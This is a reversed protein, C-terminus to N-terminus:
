RRNRLLLAVPLLPGLSVLTLLLFGDQFSLATAQATIVSDLYSKAVNQQTAEALGAESLRQAVLRLMEVTTNNAATQTAGLHAAHFETRYELAIVYVSIGTSGGFMLSLNTIGAGDRMKQPTLASMATTNIAPNAFASGVRGILLSIAVYWFLTNADAGILMATSAAIIILGFIMVFPTPMRDSAQGTLPLVMAAFISGPLLMSGAVTPSFGQVFQGFISFSYVTAFNGFAFFFACALALVFPGNRFLSLDLLAGAPRQQSLIFGIGCGLTFTSLIMLNDSTWGWRQGNGLLTFWGLVFSNALVFGLWDFSGAQTKHEEAPLFLVGLIITLICVPVPILFIARWEFADITIGGMSPGLGLAVTVGMSFMGMALGRREPPFVQFLVMMVLPQLIGAALGQLIRGLIMIELTPAIFCLVSAGAFTLMVLGFTQRQGVKAIAWSSALLGTINMGLFATSLFQAQIQGIGFAGMVHPIAVNVMSGTFISTFFASMAAATALWRAAPTFTLTTRSTAIAIAGATPGRSTRINDSIESSIKLM